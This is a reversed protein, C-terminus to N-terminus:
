GRHTEHWSRLTLLYHVIRRADRDTLGFAPMLCGPKIKQPDEIWATLNEPTSRVMGSALTERSM